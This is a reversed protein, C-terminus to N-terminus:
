ASLLNYNQLASSTESSIPFVPHRMSVGSMMRRLHTGSGRSSGPGGNDPPQYEGYSFSTLAVSFFSSTFFLFALSANAGFGM